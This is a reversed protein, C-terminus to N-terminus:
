TNQPFGVLQVEPELEINFQSRVARRVRQALEWVDRARARGQNVIFNAHKESVVADGVHSGKLGAMDILRGATLVTSPNKFFCGASALETPQTQQRQWQLRRAQEILKQSDSRYLRLRAEVIVCSRGSWPAPLRLHRYAFNLDRRELRHCGARADLLTIAQVVDRMCGNPTGANMVVAGGLTGPIGTAFTLGALGQDIAARCLTQLRVGAGAIIQVSEPGSQAMCIRGACRHLMIVLGRIGDDHVLLNTGDGVVMWALGCNDAGTILAHVQGLTEPAVLADAPGGVRLYTHRAMPEDLRVAAGLLNTLWRRQDTTLAM